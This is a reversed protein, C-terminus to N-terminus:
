RSATRTAPRPSCRRAGECRRASLGGTLDVYDPSHPPFHSGIPTGYGFMAGDIIADRDIAHAIPAGSRSTTSRRRASQQPRSRDRKGHQRRVGQFSPDAAFQAFSEPAPYNSFADVDGAMLAAYAATPDAIFKFTVQGLAPPVAGTAPIDKWRSRIAAAGPSFDSRVRASRGCRMPRAGLAARGHRLVGLGAVAAPRRLAARAVAVPHPRRDGAGRSHRRHALAASQGFRAGLARDLSFKATAADFAAGNHFRVGARLHFVYTLGDASIEWSEALSPRVSGDPAFKVLGRTCIPTCRRQSPPPRIRPPISCRRSSSCASSPGSRRRACTRRARDAALM